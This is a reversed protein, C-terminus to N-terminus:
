NSELISYLMEELETFSIREYPAVKLMKIFIDRMQISEVRLIRKNLQPIDINMEDSYLETM